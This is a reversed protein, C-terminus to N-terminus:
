VKEISKETHFLFVSKEKLINLKYKKEREQEQKQQLFSSHFDVKLM